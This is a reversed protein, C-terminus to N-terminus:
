YVRKPRMFQAQGTQGLTRLGATQNSQARVSFVAPNECVISWPPAQLFASRFQLFPALEHTSTTSGLFFVVLTEVVGPLLAKESGEVFIPAQSEGESARRM